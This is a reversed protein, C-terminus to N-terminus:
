LNKDKVHIFFEKNGKQGKISSEIINIVRLNMERSFWNKIDECVMKHIKEDRIIGGKSIFKREAEFQPKILIILDFFNNLFNLCNPIIKKISIFSVDCVLLDIKKNILANDLYRANTKELVKIRPNNRIKWDLQGYGVDVCFVESAGNQLLVDSFGGTSSGLDICIKDRIDFNFKEFATALKIGGRSVWENEKRKIKVISGVKVIFGAKVIKKNNVFVNGALIISIAKQRSSVLGMKFISLDLRCKDLTNNIEESIFM